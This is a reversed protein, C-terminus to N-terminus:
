KKKKRKLYKKRWVLSERSFATLATSDIAVINDPKSQCKEEIRKQKNTKKNRCIMDVKFNRKDEQIKLCCEATNARGAVPKSSKSGSEESILQVTFM